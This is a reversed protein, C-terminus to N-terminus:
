LKIVKYNAKLKPHNDKIKKRIKGTTKSFLSPFTKLRFDFLKDLESWEEPTFEITVNEFDSFFACREIGNDEIIM